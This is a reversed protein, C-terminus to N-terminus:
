QREFTSIFAKIKNKEKQSNTNINNLFTSLEQKEQIEMKQIVKQLVYKGYKNKLISIIKVNYLLESKIKKKGDEDILEIIKEAVNSSYKQIALFSINEIIIEVMKPCDEVGWTEFLFQIAYNGYPNVSIEIVNETIIKIIEIKDKILTNSMIFKKVLCIGNPALALEKLNRIILSNLNKRKFDKITLLIKQLVHTANNDFAMKLEHEVISNLIINEEEESSIVDLIAQLVHTGSFDKAIIEFDKQIYYLIRIIQNKSLNQILEQIFYNGYVDTMVKPLDSNIFDLLVTKCENPFKTLTKQIERAGKQSCIFNTLNMPLNNIYEKFEKVEYQEINLELKSFSKKKFNQRNFDQSKKKSYYIRNNDRNCGHNNMPNSLPFTRKRESLQSKNNKVFFFNNENLLFTSGVTINNSPQVNTSPFYIYPSVRVVRFQGQNFFLQNQQQIIKQQQYHYLMQINSDSYFRNKSEKPLPLDTPKPHYALDDVIEEDNSDYTRTEETNMDMETILTSPLLDSLDKKSTTIKENM